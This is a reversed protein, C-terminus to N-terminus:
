PGCGAAADTASPGIPVAKASAGDVDPRRTLPTNMVGKKRKRRRDAPLSQRAAVSDTLQTASARPPRAPAPANEGRRTPMATVKDPCPLCARSPPHHPRPPPPAQGPRPPTGPIDPTQASPAQTRLPTVTRGAAAPRRTLLASAVAGVASPTWYGAVRYVIVASVAAAPHTGALALAGLVGGLGGPLPVLRGGLLGSACALLLGRWPVPTGAVEFAAALLGAEGLMSLGSAALVAAGRRPGLRRRALRALGTALRWRWRSRGARRALSRGAPGIRRAAAV